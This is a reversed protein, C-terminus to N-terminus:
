IVQEIETKRMQIKKRKIHAQFTAQLIYASLNIKQTIHFFLFKQGLGIHSYARIYFIISDDNTSDQARNM